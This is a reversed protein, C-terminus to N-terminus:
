CYSLPWSFGSGGMGHEEICAVQIGLVSLAPEMIDLSRGVAEVPKMAPTSIQKQDDSTERPAPRM